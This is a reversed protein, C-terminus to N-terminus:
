HATGAALILGGLDGLSLLSQALVGTPTPAAVNSSSSSSPSSSLSSTKPPESATSSPPTSTSSPLTSTSTSSPQPNVSTTTTPVPDTKPEEGGFHWTGYMVGQGDTGGFSHFLGPSFDLDGPGCSECRDVVQAPITKGNITITVTEFCHSGGAWSPTNLAVIFDDNTNQKGCAGMGAAYYTFQGSARKQFPQLANHRSSRRAPSHPAVAASTFGIACAALILFLSSLLM